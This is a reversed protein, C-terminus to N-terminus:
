QFNAQCGHREPGPRVVYPLRNVEVVGKRGGLERDSSFEVDLLGFFIPTAFRKFFSKRPPPAPAPQPSAPPLWQPQAREMEMTDVLTAARRLPEKEGSPAPLAQGVGKRAARREAYTGARRPPRAAFLSAM